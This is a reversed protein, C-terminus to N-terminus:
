SSVAISRGPTLPIGQAGVPEGENTLGSIRFFVYSRNGARVPLVGSPRLVPMLHVSNLSHRARVVVNDAMAYATVGGSM